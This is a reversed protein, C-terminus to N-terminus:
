PNDSLQNYHKECLCISDSVFIFRGGNQKLKPSYEPKEFCLERNMGMCHKYGIYEDRYFDSKYWDDM